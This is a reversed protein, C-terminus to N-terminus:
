DGDRMDDLKERYGDNYGQVFAERYTISSAKRYDSNATPNAPRDKKADKEGEHKGEKYGQERQYAIPDVVTYRPYFSSSWFPDYYRYWFPNYSRYVIVRGPRHATRRGQASATTPGLGVVLLALVFFGTLTSKVRNAKM